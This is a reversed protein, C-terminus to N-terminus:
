SLTHTFATDTDTDYSKVIFLYIMNRRLVSQMVQMWNKNDFAIKTRGIVGNKQKKLEPPVTLFGISRPALLLIARM